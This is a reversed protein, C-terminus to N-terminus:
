YCKPCVGSPHKLMDRGCKACKEYQISVVIVFAACINVSGLPVHEPIRLTEPKAGDTDAM